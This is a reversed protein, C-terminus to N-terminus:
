KTLTSEAVRFGRELMNLIFLLIDRAKRKGPLLYTEKRLKNIAEVLKQTNNTFLVMVKAKELASPNANQKYLAYGARMAGIFNANVILLKNITDILVADNGGSNKAITILEAMNDNWAKFQKETKFPALPTAFIGQYADEFQRKAIEEMNPMSAFAQPITIFAMGLALMTKKYTNM